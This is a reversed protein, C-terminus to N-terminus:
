NPKELVSYVHEQPEETVRDYINENSTGDELSFYYPEENSQDTYGLNDKSNVTPGPSQNFDIEQYINSSPNTHSSEPSTHDAPNRNTESNTPIADNYTTYDDDEFEYYNPFNQDRPLNTNEYVTDNIPTTNIQSGPVAYSPPSGQPVKTLAAHHPLTNEDYFDKDINTSKSRQRRYYLFVGCLVALLVCFLFVPVLIPVLSSSDNEDGEREGNEPDAPISTSSIPLKPDKTTVPSINTTPGETQSKVPMESVQSTSPLTSSTLFSTSSPMQSTSSSSITTPSNTPFDPFTTVGTPTTLVTTETINIQGEIKLLLCKEKRKNGSIFCEIQIKLLMGSFTSLLEGPNNIQLINGQNKSDKQITISGPNNEAPLLDKTDGNMTYYTGKRQWKCYREPFFNFKLIAPKKVIQISILDGPITPHKFYSCGFQRRFENDKVCKGTAHNNEDYSYTFTELYACSCDSGPVCHQPVHKFIDTSTSFTDEDGRYIDSTSTSFQISMQIAFVVLSVKYFKAM